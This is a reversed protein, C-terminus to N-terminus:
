DKKLKAIRQEIEAKAAADCRKLREATAPEKLAALGHECVALMIAEITVQATPRNKPDNIERYAQELTVGPQMLRRLRALDPQEGRTKRRDAEKCALCFTPTPCPDRDCTLCIETRKRTWPSILINSMAIAKLKTGISEGLV